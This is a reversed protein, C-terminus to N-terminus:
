QAGEKTTVTIKCDRAVNIGMKKFRSQELEDVIRSVDAQSIVDEAAIELEYKDTGDEKVIRLVIRANAYESGGDLLYVFDFDLIPM